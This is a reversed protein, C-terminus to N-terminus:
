DKPFRQRKPKRARQLTFFALAEYWQGHKDPGHLLPCLYSSARPMELKHMVWNSSLWQSTGQGQGGEARGPQSHCQRSDGVSSRDIDMQNNRLTLGQNGTIEGFKSTNLRM